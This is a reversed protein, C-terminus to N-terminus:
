LGMDAADPAHQQQQRQQEFANFAARHGYQDIFANLMAVQATLTAVQANLAEMQEDRQRLAQALMRMETWSEMYSKREYAYPDADPDMAAMAAVAIEYACSMIGPSLVICACHCCFLARASVPTMHAASNRAVADAVFWIEGVTVFREKLAGVHQLARRWTMDDPANRDDAHNERIAELLLTRPVPHEADIRLTHSHNKLLKKLETKM